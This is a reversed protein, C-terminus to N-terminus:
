FFRVTLASFLKFILGDQGLANPNYFLFYSLILFFLLITVLDKFTYYPHMPLRDFNGSLGSPNGSGNEHLAMMHM